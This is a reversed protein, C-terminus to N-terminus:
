RWVVEVLAGPGASLRREAHGERVAIELYDTSGFVACPEGVEVEGYSAVLAGIESRNLYVAAARGAAAGGWDQRSINTVLNGFRDVWDVVGCLRDSLVDVTPRPLRVYGPVVPGMSAVPVGSAIWAAAPGLRDRGEFTRSVVPLAFRGPELAVVVDAHLADLSDALIGNDPGVFAYGGAEAALALRSTGVGPDVVALFVTDRPFYPAAALLHRAGARIDHAAIEHTIDVLDIEPCVSLMAGKMAGVYHGAAGFDTLLAVIRRGM